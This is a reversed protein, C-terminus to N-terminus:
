GPGTGRDEELLQLYRGATKAKVTPKLKAKGFHAGLHLHRTEACTLRAIPRNHKTILVDRGAAAEAVFSALDQKLENMPVSKMNFFYYIIDKEALIIGRRMIAQSRLGAAKRSFGAAM